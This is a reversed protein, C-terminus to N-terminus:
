KLSYLKLSNDTSCSVFLLEKPHWVIRTITSAHAAISPEITIQYKGTQQSVKCLHLAGSELGVALIFNGTADKQPAFAVATVASTFSIPASVQQWVKDDLGWLAVTDDRSGTAFIPLGPMWSVSWIIRKHAKVKYILTFNEGTQGFVCVNRDKSVSALYKDDSSFALQVVSSTHGSLQQSSVISGSALDRKWLWIGASKEDRSKCASALLTHANNSIVCLLENGHGYLKQVEPWLTRRALQEGVFPGTNDATESDQPKNTLSLEPLIGFGQGTAKGQLLSNMGTPISFVRLIKEDAGSVFNDKDLFCGCNIDYGHVQARSIERWAGNPASFVRATQDLSVSVFYDGSLSWAVDTVSQNHGSVSITPVFHAGQLSWRYLQGTFTLAVFNNSSLSTVALLGSGGLDGIRTQPQWAHDQNEWCIIQNDMSCSVLQGDPLWHVSTVWDEHGVLLADFVVSLTNDIRWLRIKCDQAASALLVSTTSVFFKLDRIWGKHGTMSAVHELSQSSANLKYLHVKMDVGGLALLTNGFGDNCAAMAEVIHKQGLELKKMGTGDKVCVLVDGNSVAIFIITQLGLSTCALAAISSAVKEVVISSWINNNLSWLRVEGSADGSLIFNEKETCRWYVTSVRAKHGHLTHTIQPSADFRAISVSNCSACAIEYSSGQLSAVSMCRSGNNVGVACFKADM